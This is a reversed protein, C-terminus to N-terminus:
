ASRSRCSVSARPRHVGRQSMEPPSLSFSRSFPVNPRIRSPVGASTRPFSDVHHRFSLLAMDFLKRSISMRASCHTGLVAEDLPELAVCM